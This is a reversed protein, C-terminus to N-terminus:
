LRTQFAFPRLVHLSSFRCPQPRRSDTHGLQAALPLEAPPYVTELPKHMPPCLVHKAPATPDSSPTLIDAHVVGGFYEGLPYLAYPHLTAFVRGLKQEITYISHFFNGKDMNLQRCCLKWDEGLLYHFKFVKYDFPNLARRSILCFDAMYEENKRGYSKHRDRGKGCSELSVTGAHGQSV